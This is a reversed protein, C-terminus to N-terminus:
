TLHTGFKLSLGFILNSCFKLNSMSNPHQLAKWFITFKNTRVQDDIQARKHLLSVNMFFTCFLAGFTPYIAENRLFTKKLRELDALCSEQV